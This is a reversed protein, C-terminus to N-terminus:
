LNAIWRRNRAFGLDVLVQVLLGCGAGYLLGLDFRLFAATSLGFLVKGALEAAMPSLLALSFLTRKLPHTRGSCNRVLFFLLSLWFGSYVGSCRCCAGLQHGFLFFSRDARQHCVQALLNWGAPFSPGALVALLLFTFASFLLAQIWIRSPM